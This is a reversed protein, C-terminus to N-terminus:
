APEAFMEDLREIVQPDNIVRVRDPLRADLPIEATGPPKEIVVVSLARLRRWIMLALAATILVAACLLGAIFRFLAAQGREHEITAGMQTVRGNLTAIVGQQEISVAVAKESRAAAATATAGLTKAQESAASASASAAKAQESAVSAAASAAKAEVVAADAQAQAAQAAVAAQQSELAMAKMQALDAQTKAAAANAAAQQARASAEAAAQQAAASQAGAADAEAQANAADQQAQEVPNAPGQALAPDHIVLTVVMASILAIMRMPKM